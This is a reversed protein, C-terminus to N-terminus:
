LFICTYVTIVAYQM